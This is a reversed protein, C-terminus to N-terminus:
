VELGGRSLVELSPRELSWLSTLLSLLEQRFLFLHKPLNPQQLCAKVLLVSEVVKLLGEVRLQFRM